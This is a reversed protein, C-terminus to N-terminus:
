EKASVAPAKVGFSWRSSRSLPRVTAPMAGGQARRAARDFLRSRALERGVQNRVHQTREHGAAPSRTGRDDRGTGLARELVRNVPRDAPKAGRMASGAKRDRARRLLPTGVERELDGTPGCQDTSPEPTCGQHWARSASAPVRGARRQVRRSQWPSPGVSVDNAIRDADREPEACSDREPQDPVPGAVVLAMRLAFAAAVIAPAALLPLRLSPPPPWIDVVQLICRSGWASRRPSSSSSSTPSSAGTASCTRPPSRPSRGPRRRRRM